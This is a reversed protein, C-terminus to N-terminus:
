SKGTCCSEFVKYTGVYQFPINLYLWFEIPPWYSIPNLDQFILIKQLNTKHAPWQAHFIWAGNIM